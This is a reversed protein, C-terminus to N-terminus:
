RFLLVPITCSRVMGTTTSGVIMTRLPSHGYAGMVLMQAGTAAIQGAIVDEPKGDILSVHATERTALLDRAWNLHTAHANDERGAMVVHIRTQAFLPSTAVFGVAKRASAGGDFAVLVNSPETFARSAVLVPRISQRVVREVKSGLHGKAFDASAGRKGIVVLDATEEREIITEVIGGHRHTLTIATQGLEELHAKAAALLARGKEQALKGESEDIRVLEELLASKAGLGVAGSLDNRAAVADKRQIIHLVEVQGGMRGAAWAACEVVSTAYLSADICALINTVINEGETRWGPKPM